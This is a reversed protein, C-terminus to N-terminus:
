RARLKIENVAIAAPGPGSANDFRLVLVAVAARAPFTREFAV